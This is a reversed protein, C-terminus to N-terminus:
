IAKDKINEGKKIAYPTLGICDSVNFKQFDERSILTKCSENDPEVLTCQYKSLYVNEEGLRNVELVWRSNAPCGNIEVKNEISVHSKRLRESLKEYYERDVSFYIRSYMSLQPLEPESWVGKVIDLSDNLKFEIGNIFGKFFNTPFVALRNYFSSDNKLCRVSYNFGIHVEQVWDSTKKAVEPNIPELEVNVSKDITVDSVNHYAFDPAHKSYLGIHPISLYTVKKKDKSAPTANFGVADIGGDDDWGEKAKLAKGIGVKGQTVSDTYTILKQFDMANPLHWGNPCAELPVYGGQYNWIISSLFDNDHTFMYGAKYLRGYKECMEPDDDPCKSYETKFKLNEAMWVQDGIKVTKYKQGDRPDTFTEEGCATFSAMVATFAMTTLIINIKNM